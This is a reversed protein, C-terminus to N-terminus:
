AEQRVVPAVGLLGAIWFGPLSGVMGVLVNAIWGMQDVLHDLEQRDEGEGVGTL